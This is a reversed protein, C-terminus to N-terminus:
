LQTLFIFNLLYFFIFTTYIHAYYNYTMEMKQYKYFICLTIFIYQYYDFFLLFFSYNFSFIINNKAKM